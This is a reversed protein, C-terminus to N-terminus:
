CIERNNREKFYGIFQQKFASLKLRSIPIVEANKMTVTSSNHEKIHELNILVSKHIRFFHRDRLQNEIEGLVCDVM